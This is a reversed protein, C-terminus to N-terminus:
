LVEEFAEVMAELGGMGPCTSWDRLISVGTVLGSDAVYFFSFFLILSSASLASFLITFM